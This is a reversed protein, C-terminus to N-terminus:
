KQQKAMSVLERINEHQDADFHQVMDGIAAHEDGNFAVMVKRMETQEEAPFLNIFGGITKHEKSDFRSLM